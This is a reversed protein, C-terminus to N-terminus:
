EVVGIPANAPPQGRTVTFGAFSAEGYDREPLQAALLEVVAGIDVQHKDIARVAVGGPRRRDTVLFEKLLEGVAVGFQEGGVRGPAEAVADIQPETGVSAM